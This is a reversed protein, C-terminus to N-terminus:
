SLIVKFIIRQYEDEKKCFVRIIKNRVMKISVIIGHVVTINLTFYKYEM